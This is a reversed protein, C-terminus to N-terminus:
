DESNVVIRSMFKSQFQYKYRVMQKLNAHALSLYVLVKGDFLYISRCYAETDGCFFWETIQGDDQRHFAAQFGEGSLRFYGRLKKEIAKEKIIERAKRVTEDPHTYYNLGTIYEFFNMELFNICNDAGCFKKSGKVTIEASVVIQNPGMKSVPEFNPFSLLLFISQTAGDAEYINEGLFSRPIRFEMGNISFNAYGPDIDDYGPCGPPVKITGDAHRHRETYALNEKAMPDCNREANAAKPSGIILGMLFLLSITTALVRTYRVIEGFIKGNGIRIGDEGEILVLKNTTCSFWYTKLRRGCGFHRM